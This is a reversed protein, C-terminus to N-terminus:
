TGSQAQQGITPEASLLALLAAFRDVEEPETTFSTVLRYVPHNQKDTGCRWPLSGVEVLRLTLPASLRVFVHNGDVPHLIKVGSCQALQDRLRRAMANAHGANRLWLGDDLLALLQAAMFRMKSYLQGSKKLRSRTADAVAKDFTVIADANTTGNKTAGFSLIDVGSRWSADAPTAGLAVVANAFRAGDMHVRAGGRHAIAALASVKDLSYVTGAETLQTLSLASWRM